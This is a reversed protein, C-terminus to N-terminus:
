IGLWYKIQIRFESNQISAEQNALVHVLVHGLCWSPCFLHGVTDYRCAISCNLQQGVIGLYALCAWICRAWSKTLVWKASSAQEGDAENPATYEEWMAARRVARQKGHTHEPPYQAIPWLISTSPATSRTDMGSVTDHISKSESDSTGRGRVSREAKLSTARYGATTANDNDNDNDNDGDDGKNDDEGCFVLRVVGVAGETGKEAM